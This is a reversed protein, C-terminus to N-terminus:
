RDGRMAKRIWSKFDRLIAAKKGDLAPRLFPQAKTGPHRKIYRWGVGRIKVPSNIMHSRTGYETHPAYEVNTGVHVTKKDKPRSVADEPNGAPESGETRTQWTISGRLRGSRVPANLMADGAVMVGARTLAEETARDLAAEYNRDRMTNTIEMRRM